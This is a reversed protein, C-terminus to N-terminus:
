GGDTDPGIADGYLTAGPRWDGPTQQPEAQVEVQEDASVRTQAIFEEVPVAYPNQSMSAAHGALARSDLTGRGRRAGPRTGRTSDHQILHDDGEIM